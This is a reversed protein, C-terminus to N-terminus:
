FSIKKKNFKQSQCFFIDGASFFDFHKNLSRWYLVNKDKKNYFSM